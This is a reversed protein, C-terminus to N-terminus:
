KCHLTVLFLSSSLIINILQLQPLQDGVGIPLDRSLTSQVVTHWACGWSITTKPAPWLQTLICSQHLQMKVMLRLISAFEPFWNMHTTLTIEIPEYMYSICVIATTPAKLTAKVNTAADSTRSDLHFVPTGIETSLLRKRMTTRLMPRQDLLLNARVFQKKSKQTNM